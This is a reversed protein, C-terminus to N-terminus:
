LHVHIFLLKLRKESMIYSYCGMKHGSAIFIFISNFYLKKDTGTLKSNVM